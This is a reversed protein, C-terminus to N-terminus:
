FAGGFFGIILVAIVGAALVAAAIALTMLLKNSQNTTAPVVDRTSGHSSVARSAAVPSAATVSAPLEDGEILRDIGAGDFHNPDQGASGLGRPLDITGTILIEGTSNSTAGAEAQAPAVPIILSSTTIQGTSTMGSGLLDEFAVENDAQSAKEAELAAVLMSDRGFGKSLTSAPDESIDDRDSVDFLSGTAVPTAAAPTVPPTPVEASRAKTAREDAAAREAAKREAAKREEAKREAAQQEEAKREAAKRQEAQKTAAAERREQEAAAAAKADAEQQALKAAQQRAAKNQKQPPAVVQDPTRPPLAVSPVPQEVPPAVPAAPSGVQEISGTRELERLQRRTLGGTPAPAPAGSAQTSSSPAPSTSAPAPASDDRSTAQEPIAGGAVPESTSARRTRPAAADPTAEDASTSPQQSARAQRRTLPADEPLATM